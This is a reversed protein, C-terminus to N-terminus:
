KAVSTGYLQASAASASAIVLALVLAIKKMSNRKEVM